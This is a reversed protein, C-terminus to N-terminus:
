VFNHIRRFDEIKDFGSDKLIEPHEDNFRFLRGNEDCKFNTYFWPSKIGFLRKNESNWYDENKLDYNRYIYDIWTTKNTQENGQYEESWMDLKQFPSLLLGYHHMGYELPVTYSRKNNSYWKQTPYFKYKKNCEEFKFLRDHESILYYNMNIFFYYSQLLIENYYGEQLLKKLNTFTKQSYLEDSDRLFIYDGVEISSLDLMKNLIDAKIVSHTHILNYKIVKVDKYSMLIEETQDRYKIMKPSHPACCAIVEDCQELSEEIIYKIWNECGWVVLLGIIKM